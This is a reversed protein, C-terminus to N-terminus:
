RGIRSRPFVASTMRVGDAELTVHFSHASKPDSSRVSTVGDAAIYDVEFTTVSPCLVAYRTGDTIRLETGVLGVGRGDGLAFASALSGPMDLEEDDESWPMERLLRVVRDLAHAVRETAARERRADAMSSYSSMTVPMVIAAVISLVLIAALLEVLTFGRRRSSRVRRRM